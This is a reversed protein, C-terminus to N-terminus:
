FPLVILKQTKTMALKWFNKKLDASNQILNWYAAVLISSCKLLKVKMKIWLWIQSLWRWSCWLIPFVFFVLVSQSCGMAFPYKLYEPFHCSLHRSLHTHIYTTTHPMMFPWWLSIQPAILLPLEHLCRNILTYM